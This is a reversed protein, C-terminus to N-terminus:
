SLESSYYSTHLYGQSEKIVEDTQSEDFFERAGYIDGAEDPRITGPNVM